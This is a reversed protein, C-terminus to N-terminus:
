IFQTQQQQVVEEAEVGNLRRIHLMFHMQHEPDTIRIEELDEKGTIHRIYQLSEYGTEWFNSFYVEMQVENKLWDLVAEKEARAKAQGATAPSDVVAAATGTAGEMQLSPELEIDADFTPTPARLTEIAETEIQNRQMELSVIQTINQEPQQQTEQIEVQETQIEADLTKAINQETNHQEQQKSRYLVRVVVGSTLLCTIVIVALGIILLWLEVTSIHTENSDSVTVSVGEGSEDTGNAVSVTVSTSTGM